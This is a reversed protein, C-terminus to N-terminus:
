FLEASGVSPDGLKRTLRALRHHVANLRPVTSEFQLARLAFLRAAHLDRARHEHHVALAETAERVLSAPCEPLELLRRWAAAAEEYLRERRLLVAYGRLAQAHSVGDEGGFDAARRYCERAEAFMAAREYLRGLGLAERASTAGAPGEDLLRAARATLWALSLLDLRNHEFVAELPRPDATRVYHFYRSPIECGPVDGDRVHGCLLQELAGLRCSSQRGFDNGHNTRWLRRASHLMDLHPLNDFPTPMRHMAYRTDILPIDFTKGNYTVVAHATTMLELLGHLLAREAGFSSLFFQRVRFVAGDFWACGVLFAYTGAGGALGTTELDLFMMRGQPSLSSELLVLRPWVGDDPPHVDAVALAGHRHGPLYKRDIVLYRHGISEHWAGGLIEAVDTSPQGAHEPLVCPPDQETSGAHRVVDRLRDILSSM